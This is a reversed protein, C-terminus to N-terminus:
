FAIDDDDGWQPPANRSVKVPAAAAKRPESKAPAPPADSKATDEVSAPLWKAVVARTSGDKATYHKLVVRAQKGVLDGQMLEERGIGLSVAVADLMRGWDLPVDNFVFAFNGEPRLRLKLCEGKPNDDSVKWPVEGISAAVVECVHPGSPAPGYKNM